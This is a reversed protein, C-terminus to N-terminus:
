RQRPTDIRSAQAAAATLDKRSATVYAQTPAIAIRVGEPWRGRLRDAAAMASSGVPLVSVPALRAAIELLRADLEPGQGPSPYWAHVARSHAAPAAESRVLLHVEHGADALDRVVGLTHKFEGDTVLVRSGSSAAHAPDTM